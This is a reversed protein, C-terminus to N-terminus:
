GVLCDPLSDKVDIIKTVHMGKANHGPFSFAKAYLHGEVTVYKREFANSLSGRSRRPPYKSKRYVDIPIELELELPKILPHSHSVRMCVGNGSEWATSIRCDRLVVTENRARHKTSDMKRAYGLHPLVIPESDGFKISMLDMAAGHSLMWKFAAIVEIGPMVIITTGPLPPHTSNNAHISVACRNEGLSVKATEVASYATAAYLRLGEELMTLLCKTLRSDGGDKFYVSLTRTGDANPRSASCFLSVAESPPGLKPALAAFLTPVRASIEAYTTERRDARQQTSDSLIIEIPLRVSPENTAAFLDDYTDCCKRDCEFSPFYPCRM